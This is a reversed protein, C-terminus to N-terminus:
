ETGRTNEWMRILIPTRLSKRTTSMWPQMVKWGDLVDFIRADKLDAM